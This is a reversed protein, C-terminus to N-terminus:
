DIKEGSIIRNCKTCFIVMLNSVSGDENGMVMVQPDGPTHETCIDEDGSETKDISTGAPPADDRSIYDKTPVISGWAEGISSAVADSVDQRAVTELKTLEEDTLWVTMCEETKFIHGFKSIVYNRRETM